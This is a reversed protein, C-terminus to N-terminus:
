SLLEKVTKSILSSDALGKLKPMVAKMVKGMDAPVSAGIEEIAASVVDKVEDPSMQKPLLTELVEIDKQAEAVAAERGSKLAENLSERRIKIEKQIIQLTDDENLEKGQEKEVYKISSLAMRYIRKGDEDSARMADKLRNNLTEKLTM